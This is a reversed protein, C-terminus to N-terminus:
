GSRFVQLLLNFSGALPIEDDNILGVFHRSGVEVILQLSCFTILKTLEQSLAVDCPM